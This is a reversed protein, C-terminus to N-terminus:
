RGAEREGLYHLVAVSPFLTQWGHLGCGIRQLLSSRVVTGKM